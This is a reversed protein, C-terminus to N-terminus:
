ASQLYDPLHGSAAWYSDFKLSHMLGAFRADSRMPATVPEFLFRTQRQDLAAGGPAGPDSIEFGRNFYYADALAFADDIRGLACTDRILSDVPQYESKQAEARLRAVLRERARTDGSELTQAIEIVEKAQVASAGSPASQLDSAMVIADRHRGSYLLIELKTFWLTAQTPYLSVARAIQQDAEEILGASWLARLFKNYDAPTLPGSPLRRYLEVAEKNRGVFQLTVATYILADYCDPDLALARNQHRERELYHGLFPLAVSLAMEGLASRSDLELARRAAAEARARLDASEPKPRYHSVIGYIIGLRGWGDAYGPKREVVNRLLGIAQYQGERTNQGALQRSQDMMAQIERSVPPRATQWWALGGLTAAGLLGATGTLAARRTIPQRSLPDPRSESPDTGNFLYLRYGIKSQTEIALVDGADALARRLRSIVRNIADDSVIRGEWCAAILEDRSVVAGNARHLAILVQMIRHEITIQSNGSSLERRSPSITLPGITIDPEHALDIRVEATATGM